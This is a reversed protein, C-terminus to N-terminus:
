KKQACEPEATLIGVADFTTSQMSRKHPSYYLLEAEVVFTRLKDGLYSRLMIFEPDSRALFVKHACPESDTKESSYFLDMWEKDSAHSVFHELKAGEPIRKTEGTVVSGPMIVKQIPAVYTGYTTDSPTPKYRISIHSLFVEGDGENAFAYTAEGSTLLRVTERWTLVRISENWAVIRRLQPFTSVVYTIVAIIVSSIGVVNAIFRVTNKWGVQFSSCESCLSASVPIERGCAICTKKKLAEGTM